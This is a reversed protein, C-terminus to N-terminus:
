NAVSIHAKLVQKINNCYCLVRFQVSFLVIFYNITILRKMKSPSIFFPILFQPSPPGLEGTGGSSYLIAYGGCIMYIFLLTFHLM